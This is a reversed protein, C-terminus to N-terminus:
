QPKGGSHNSTNADTTVSINIEEQITMSDKNTVDQFEQKFDQVKDIFEDTEMEEENMENWRILAQKTRNFEEDSMKSAETAPVEFKKVFEQKTMNKFEDLPIKVEKGTKQNTLTIMRVSTNQSAEEQQSNDGVCGTQSLLMALIGSLSILKKM